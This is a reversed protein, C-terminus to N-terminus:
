WHSFQWFHSTVARLTMPFVCSRRQSRNKVLEATSKFHLWHTLFNPPYGLFVYKTSANYFTPSCFLSKWSCPYHSIRAKYHLLANSRSATDLIWYKALTAIFSTLDENDSALVCTLPDFYIRTPVFRLIQQNLWHFYHSHQTCDYVTLKIKGIRKSATMIKLMIGQKLIYHANGVGICQFMFDAACLKYKVKVLMTIHDFSQVHLKM